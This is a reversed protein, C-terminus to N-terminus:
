RGLLNLLCAKIERMEWRTGEHPNSRRSPSGQRLRYIPLCHAASTRTGRDHVARTKPQHFPQAQSHLIDVKSPVLNQNAAAFAGLVPDRHQGFRGLGQELVVELLDLGNVLLIHRIPPTSHWKRVSEIPFVGIRRWVPAPLPDKRLFMAPPVGLGAFFAPMMKVLRNKLPCDLLSNALRYNHLVYTAMCEPMREDCMKKFRTIVDSCDLFQETVLVDARGHLVRMHQVFTAM